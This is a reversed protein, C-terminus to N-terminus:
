GPPTITQGQKELHGTGPRAEEEPEGGKCLGSRSFIHEGSYSPTLNSTFFAAQGPKGPSGRVRSTGPKDRCLSFGWPGEQGPERQYYIQLWFGPM